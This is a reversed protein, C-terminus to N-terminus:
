YQNTAGLEQFGLNTETKIGEQRSGDGKTRRPTYEFDVGLLILNDASITWNPSMATIAFHIHEVNDALTQYANIGTALPAIAGGRAINLFWPTGAASTNSSSPVAKTIATTPSTILASGSTVTAYWIGFGITPTLGSASTTWHPHIYIPWNKDVAHPVPWRFDVTPTTGVLLIGGTRASPVRVYSPSGISWGVTLSAPAFATTGSGVNMVFASAPIHVKETLYSINRDRVEGKQM